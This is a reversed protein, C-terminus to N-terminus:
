CLNTLNEVSGFYEIKTIGNTILYNNFEWGRFGHWKNVAWVKWERNSSLNELNLKLRELRM